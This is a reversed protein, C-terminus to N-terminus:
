ALQKILSKFRNIAKLEFEEDNEFDIQIQATSSLCDRHIDFCDEGTMSSFEKLAKLYGDAIKTYITKEKHKLQTKLSIVDCLRLTNTINKRDLNREMYFCLFLLGMCCIDYKEQEKTNM